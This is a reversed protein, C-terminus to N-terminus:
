QDTILSQSWPAFFPLSCIHHPLPGGSSPTPSALPEIFTLLLLKFLLVMQLLALWAKSSSCMRVPTENLIILAHNLVHYYATTIQIHRVLLLLGHHRLSAPLRCLSRGLRAGQVGRANEWGMRRLHYCPAHAGASGCIYQKKCM